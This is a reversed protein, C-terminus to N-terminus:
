DSTVARIAWWWSCVCVFTRKKRWSSNLFFFAAACHCPRLVEVWGRSLLARCSRSLSDCLWALQCWQSRFCREESSHLKCHVKGKPCREPSEICALLRPWDPGTGARWGAVIARHLRALAERRGVRSRASRLRLVARHKAVGSEVELHPSHMSVTRLFSHADRLYHGPFGAFTFVLVDTTARWPKRWLNLFPVPIWSDKLVHM